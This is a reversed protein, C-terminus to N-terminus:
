ATRGQSFAVLQELKYAAAGDALVSHARAIGAALSDACGAVYIAAGANLCVIDRAPSPQNALVRQILALSEAPSGVRISDLPARALGFEEPTIQYCEIQGNKLEAVETVSSISIEDMGDQAHVVLIHQSGLNRLVEAIPRVLESSFVGVVQNPAGAPNTLPGLVNFITRVAMERRPGIAHRMASHHQPAFLFGIGVQEICAKLRELPMDLKVGAAELLDAAGSKGSVARNGHKAVTAGAASAVLASCTSINFTGSADGGTGVIDVVHAATIEVKHALERMVQAAATIEEVTEGKMRLGVLFGGVQAATAEGTMITRMVQTMQAPALNRGEIVARIAAPMDM